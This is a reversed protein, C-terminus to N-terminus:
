RMNTADKVYKACFIWSEANSGSIVCWYILLYAPQQDVGWVQVIMSELLEAGV